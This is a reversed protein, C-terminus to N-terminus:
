KVDSILRATIRTASEVYYAIVDVANAATTLTPATGGPFKWASGYALTRSGTADQTVVITGSQGAVLNTPNALTRNGALTVSFNNGAAFDPTITADDTLAVVTGRQAATFSQATNTVAVNAVAGTSGNVSLVGTNAVATGSVSIGTGATVVTINASGNFSVGQITRATQLTTATSANGALAATITGASFNGSGDRAVIASVTNNSTATTASNAVKGATSITALKTDAIAAAANIDANVIAGATIDTVGANSITVDGTMAVSTAVNGGSGVLINGSSLSALKSFAIAANSAIDANAISGSLVVTGSADPFTITRDATPDVAALYTEYDNDTTGEFAFSGTSGILLEGSITGGALPLKKGDLEQIAAQVNTATVNGSPSFSVNIATQATVTNSVDIETWSSGDSLILDPPLLAVQPAPATGTGGVSVVLYHRSNVSSPAPLPSGVALGIATGEATVSAVLNTSADYTGTFILEGFSVGIPQWVNSDWLYLRRDLPNFFFQGVHDAIPQTEGFQSVAYNALRSGTIAGAGIRAPDLTGSTLKSAPLEPVDSADLTTGNTIHGQADYSVKTATGTAIVNSHNLAGADGMALGTGPRVAGIAGATAAPLDASTASRGGTVLGKDDYTVVSFTAGSAVVDNDIELADDNMRLGEGNVIVGGKTSTTPTPLDTGVIQRYEAAGAGGTPGALFQAAATTDDLTTAVTVTDGSTTVSINVLGTSSGIVTNVSGAAKIAQWTSGDWCSIKLTGTDLALQGVFAGAIPLATVLDVTSEDALKASTVADDALKATSVSGDALSTGPIDGAGFLIKAGPITADAILTVAKGTFDSVTIKKTESASVDAVPLLDNAALDAGALAALESIRLDAM